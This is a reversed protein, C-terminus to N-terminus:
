SYCAMKSHVRSCRLTSQVSPTSAVTRCPHRALDLQPRAQMCPNLHGVSGAALHLPVSPVNFVRPFTRRRQATAPGGDRRRMARMGYTAVHVTRGRPAARSERTRGSRHHSNCVEQSGQQRRPSAPARARACRRGQIPARCRDRIRRGDPPHQAQKADDAVGRGSCEPELM